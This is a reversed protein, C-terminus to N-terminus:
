PEGTFPETDSSIESTESDSAAFDETPSLGDDTDGEDHGSMGGEEEDDSSTGRTEFLEMYGYDNQFDSIEGGRAGGNSRFSPVGPFVPQNLPMDDPLKIPPSAGYIWHQRWHYWTELRGMCQETSYLTMTASCSYTMKRAGDVNGLDERM